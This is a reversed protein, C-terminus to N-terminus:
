VSQCLSAPLDSHFSDIPLNIGHFCLIIKWMLDEPNETYTHFLQMTIDLAQIVAACLLTLLM